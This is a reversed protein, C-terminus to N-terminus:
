GKIWLFLRNDLFYLLGFTWVRLLLRLFGSMLYGLMEIFSFKEGLEQFINNFLKIIGIAPNPKIRQKDSRSSM